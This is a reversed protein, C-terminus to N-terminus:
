TIKKQSTQAVAALQQLSQRAPVLVTVADGNYDSPSRLGNLRMTTWHLYAPIGLETLAGYFDGEYKYGLQPTIAVVEMETSSRLWALHTEVLLRWTMSYYITANATQNMLGLVTMSM